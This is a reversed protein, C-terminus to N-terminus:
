LARSSRIIEKAEEKGDKFAQMLKPDSKILNKIKEEAAKGDISYSNKTEENTNNSAIPRNVYNDEGLLGFGLAQLADVVDAAIYIISPSIISDVVTQEVWDTIGIEEFLKYIMSTGFFVAAGGLAIAVIAGIGGTSLGIVGLVAAIMGAGIRGMTFATLLLGIVGETILEGLKERISNYAPQMSAPLKSADSAALGKLFAEKEQQTKLAMGNTEVARLYADLSEEIQVLNILAVLSNAMKAGFFSTLFNVLRKLIASIIKKLKGPKVDPKPPKTEGPKTEGPLKPTDKPYGDGPEFFWDPAGRLLPDTGKYYKNNPPIDDLSTNRLSPVNNPDVAPAKSTGIDPSGTKSSSSFKNTSQLRPEIRRNNSNNWAIAVKEIAAKSGSRVVKKTGDPFQIEIGRQRPTFKMGEYPTGSLGTASPGTGAPNVLKNNILWDIPGEALIQHVKM